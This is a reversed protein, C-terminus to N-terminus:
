QFAEQEQIKAKLEQLPKLFFDREQLHPHPVQLTDDHLEVPKGREDEITMIDIDILRDAYGGQANRHNGSGLKAEISHLWTLVEHPLQQTSIAVGVNQFGHESKFGWPESEVVHSVQCWTAGNSLEVIAHLLNAERNGLNTGINLFYLM